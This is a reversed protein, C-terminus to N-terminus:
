GNGNNGNWEAPPPATTISERLHPFRTLIRDLDAAAKAAASGDADWVIGNERCIRTMRGRFEDPHAAILERIAANRAALLRNNAM